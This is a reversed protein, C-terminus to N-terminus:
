IYEIIATDKAGLTIKGSMEQMKIHDYCNGEKLKVDVSYDNHNLIFIFEKHGKVRKTVEVGYPADLPANIGRVECLYAMFDKIFSEEPSTGVYYAKGEGFCNETLVPMGAYFDKGYVALVRAGELHLLDCLLGCSYEKSLDGIQEKIVMINEDEPFLADIEEVWIGLLKRLEGPYGGLTVLDNENVIGSFSTTVFTGGKKVFSEINSAVGPKVMYMVPAIVIDYGSLDGDPRIMDLQINMDHLVKYYKEVEPIYKLHVSPGSSFEIAWWNEWDFIIALKSDLRSNLLKGGLSKLEEGLEACEKFVRTNEHGAHEIVASHFKECAGISRRLQFFMVTDAGHALAQYSWLRMVGPRKIINVPQWNQQSPTQEMLMFPEGGKLGRMLDHRMATTSILDHPSPYSDWSVIDMHRAWKFYDLPKFIGMLNTTVPIETTIEKIAKYEGLYCELISDSMFRNYDLSIGQFMILDRNNGSWTDKVMENLYSPSVIEDWEYVTHGWFSLNWRRNIEEITGYRAKLWNRFEEECNDCYCYNGYENGIHWVVLAPHDKYMKALKEALKASFNRYVRSNPCFNARAGHKRKRGEIDVPLVEPYKKSMWAPQAATSTALCVYIGNDYLMDLINDLWDFSYEEESLQLKAWSFVPLTVINIGAKKFLKMDEEWTKEDWQDPNYDGGYFIFPLKSSIM